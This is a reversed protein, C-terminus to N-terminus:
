QAIVAQFGPNLFTPQLVTDSGGGAAMGNSVFPQAQYAYDMTMTDVGTKSPVSVFPQAKFAFNMTILDTKSPLAM